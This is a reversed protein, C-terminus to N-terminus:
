KWREEFERRAIEAALRYREREIVDRIREIEVRIREDNLLLNKNKRNPRYGAAVQADRWPLGEAIARAFSRQRHDLLRRKKM